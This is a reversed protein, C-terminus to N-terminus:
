STTESEPPPLCFLTRVGDPLHETDPEEVYGVGGPTRQVFLLVAARSAVTPPPRTGHFYRENWYPAMEKVSQGFTARSFRERLAASAPLNVPHATAGSPWFRQRMLFIRRVEDLGVAADRTTDPLNAVVCVPAGAEQAPAGRAPPGIGAAVGALLALVLVPVM